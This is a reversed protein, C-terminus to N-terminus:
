DATVFPNSDRDGGVWSGFRIPTVDVPLSRGTVARLADDWRRLFTPVADWLIREFLGFGARAEDVPTPRLRRLNDTHWLSAIERRVEEDVAAELAADDPARRALARAIRAYKSLVTRRSAQTPHATLVLEIPQNCAQEFIQERTIGRA